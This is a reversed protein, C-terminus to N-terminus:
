IVSKEFAEALLPWDKLSQQYAGAKGELVVGYHSLRKALVAYFADVATPESFMFPGQAQAFIDTIRQLEKRIAEGSAQLPPVERQTFSCQERVNAFGSHIEACLSRALAREGTDWPYLGGGSIENLYETIALSDHIVRDGELWVPVLGVPSYTLIETKYDAATLDIRIVDPNFGAIRACLWARLSWTSDTGSILTMM